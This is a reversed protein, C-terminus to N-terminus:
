DNTENSERAAPPDQFSPKHRKRMEAQGFFNEGGNRRGTVFSGGGDLILGDGVHEGPAVHEADRLGAGALRRCEHQRHQGHQLLAAGARAHRARENQLRRALERRLHFFAKGFVADVVLEVDRQDDAADREVILVHFERAAHIHQDGRRAAQEVMELASTQQEVADFEEDDVLGVAHEVHAEDGVDLADALENREGALGQEEGGGHRRFDAADGLLKQVIRHADLDGRRGGGDGGRGLKQGFGAAVRISLRSVSRRRIREASPNFFAMMKQLRLRSTAVRKRESSRWPKETCASCPSMSWGARM